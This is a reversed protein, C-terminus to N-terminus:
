PTRRGVMGALAGISDPVGSIRTHDIKGIETHVDTTAEKLAEKPEYGAAVYKDYRQTILREVHNSQTSEAQVEFQEKQLESQALLFETTYIPRSLDASDFEIGFEEELLSLDTERRFQESLNVVVHGYEDIPDGDDNYVYGLMEREMKNRVNQINLWNKDAMLPILLGEAKAPILIEELRKRDEENKISRLSNRGTVHYVMTLRLAVRAEERMKGKYEEATTTVWVEGCNVPIRTEDRLVISWLIKKFFVHYYGPSPLDMVDNGGRALTGGEHLKVQSLGLMFLIGGIGFALTTLTINSYFEADYQTLDTYFFFLALPIGFYVLVAFILNRGHSGYLFKELYNM